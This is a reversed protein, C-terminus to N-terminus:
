DIRKFITNCINNVSINLDATTELTNLLFKEIENKTKPLSLYKEYMTMAGMAERAGCGIAVYAKDTEGVQFDSEIKYIKNQIGLLIDGPSAFDTEDNKVCINKEIFLNRIGNIVTTRVYKDIDENIKLKPIDLEYMLVDRMRFSGCTAILMDNLKFIKPDLRTEKTDENSGQTDSAFCLMKNTKYGICCTM